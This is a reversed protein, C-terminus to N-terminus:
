PRATKAYSYAFIQYGIINIYNKGSFSAANYQSVIDAYADDFSHNLGSVSYYNGMFSNEASFIIIVPFIKSVKKAELGLYNLRSKMYNFDPASRYDHILIRDSNAILTSCQAAEQAAPNRLWGIYEEAILKPSCSGSCSKMCTLDGCYCSFDCTTGNNWWENELNLVNFRELTDARSNNYLSMTQTFGTASGRIAAVQKIGYQLKARKVFSALMPNNVSTNQLITILNYISIANISNRQCWNLLSDEKNANGLINAFDDVYLGRYQATSSIKNESSSDSKPNLKNEPQEKRCCLIISVSLMMLMYKKM